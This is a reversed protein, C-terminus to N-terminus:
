LPGQQVTTIELEKLMRNECFGCKECKDPADKVKLERINTVSCVHYEHAM